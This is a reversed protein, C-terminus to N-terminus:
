RRKYEAKSLESTSAAFLKRVEPFILLQEADLNM